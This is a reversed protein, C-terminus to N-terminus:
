SQSKKFISSVNSKLNLIMETSIYVPNERDYMKHFGGSFEEKKSGEKIWWKRSKPDWCFGCLQTGKFENEVEPVYFLRASIFTSLVPTIFPQLMKQPWFNVFVQLKTTPRMITFFFFVRSCFAAPHVRQIRKLLRDMVGKYFETNLTNRESVFDKNVVEDSYFIIILQDQLPVRSIETEEASSIDWWGMWFYTEKNWPWLCSVLDWKGYLKTLFFIKDADTM